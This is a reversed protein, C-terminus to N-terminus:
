PVKVEGYVTLTLALKVDSGSVLGPDLWNILDHLWILQEWWWDPQQEDFPKALYGDM